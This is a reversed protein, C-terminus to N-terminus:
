EHLLAGNMNFICITTEGQLNNNTTISIKNTTPNPYVTFTSELLVNEVAPFGGENTTKLIIGYDGVIYGTSDNTFFISNLGNRTIGSLDSWTRGGDVTKLFIGGM